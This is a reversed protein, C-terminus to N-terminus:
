SIGSLVYNLALAPRQMYMNRDSFIFVWWSNPHLIYSSRSDYLSSFFIWNGKHNFWQDTTIGAFCGEIMGSSCPGSNKASVTHNSSITSNLM